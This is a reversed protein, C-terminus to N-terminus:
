ASAVNAQRDRIAGLAILTVTAALALLAVIRGLRYAADHFTLSVTRAGPPLPVGILNFNARVTEVRQGGIDAQWGPYYNESVVLIGGSNGVAESLEVNIAGPEYQTVLAKVPSPAPVSTPPTPNLPSATDIIAARLPDFRPDFITAYAEDDTGEVMATAVWAPPNEEAFRYLYVTSGAANKVPGVIKRPAAKWRMGSMAQAILSDPISTYLYQVSEHRLFEPRGILSDLEQYRAIENGHYGSVSRVGHSMLGNGQGLGDSGFMNDGGARANLPDWVWVRGPAKEARIADIAPDSAFVVSARSTFLWYQKEVIWLDAFVLLGLASPLWRAAIWRRQAAWLVGLSAVVFFISRLAGRLLAPQNNEARQPWAARYVENGTMAALQSGISTALSTALPAAVLSLLVIGVAWGIVYRKTISEAMGLLRETGFAALVALSFMTAFMMTSPARFSSTGPIVAYILRYFPTSGGLAWLLSIGFLGIWYWRVRRPLLASFMGLGALVLVVVGPYESHLHIRNRGWYDYLIGSFEPIFANILEETPMSYSIAHEWGSSRMGEARPSWAEYAAVQPITVLAVIAAVALAGGVAIRLKSKGALVSRFLAAHAVLAFGFFAVAVALGKLLKTGLLPMFQITGILGGLAVAGFAFALREFAVSRPLTIGQDDASLALFLAFSGSILLLYQFLQPHPTLVGLGVVAAFAGFAWHRGRRIMLLLMWLALPLLASVFIKGDHGPSVLAGIPGSICYALGGILAGYFGVGYARLFCYTFMGALFVHIIMGWTMAVDTPLLMRLLFTPYFIDGHMGGIYPLGGFLYPNWEPFGQGARLSAGAFERFAYGAKFQDSHPSVLFAGSLAPYALSLTALAYVFAAWASAFRPADLPPATVSTNPATRLPVDIM